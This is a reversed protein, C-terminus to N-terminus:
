VQPWNNLALNLRVRPQFKVWHKRKEIKVHRNEEFCQLQFGKNIWVLMARGFQRVLKAVPEGAKSLKGQSGLKYVYNLM